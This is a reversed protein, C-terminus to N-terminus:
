VTLSRLDLHQTSSWFVAINPSCGRSSSFCIVGLQGQLFLAAPRRGRWGAGAAAHILLAAPLRKVFSKCGQRNKLWGRKFHSSRLSVQFGGQASGPQQDSPLCPLLCISVCFSLCVSCRCPWTLFCTLGLPGSLPVMILFHRYGFKIRLPMFSLDSVQINQRM